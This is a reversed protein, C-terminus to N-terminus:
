MPPASLGEHNANPSKAVLETAFPIDNGVNEDEEAPVLDEEDEYEIDETKQQKKALLAAAGGTIGAMLRKGSGKAKAIAGEGKAKKTAVPAEDHSDDPPSEKVPKAVPKDKKAFGLKEFFSGSSQTKSKAKPKAPKKGAVEGSPGIIKEFLWLAWEGVRDIVAIWSIDLLLTLGAFFGGLLAITSGFDGLVAVFAKAVMLGLLGGAKFTLSSEPWLLTVLGCGCLLAMFVGTVTLWSNLGGSPLLPRFLLFGLYLLSLPILYALYGFFGILISALYAGAVGAKNQIIADSDFQIFGPDQPDFSVLSLLVVASLFSFFLISTQQLSVLKQPNLKNNIGNEVM